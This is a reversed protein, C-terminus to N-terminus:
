WWPLRAPAFGHTQGLFGLSGGPPFLLELSRKLVHIGGTFLGAPLEGFPDELLSAQGPARSVVSSSCHMTGSMRSFPM